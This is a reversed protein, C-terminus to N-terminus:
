LHNAAACKCQLFLLIFSSQLIISSYYFLLGQSVSSFTSCLNSKRLVSNQSSCCPSRILHNHLVASINLLTIAFRLSIQCISFFVLAIGLKNPKIPYNCSFIHYFDTNSVFILCIPFFNVRIGLFTSIISFIYFINPM